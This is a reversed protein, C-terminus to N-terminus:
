HLPRAPRQGKEIQEAAAAPERESHLPRAELTDRSEIEVGFGDCGKLCVERVHRVDQLTIERLEPRRFERLEDACLLYIDDGTPRRALSERRGALAIARIMARSAQDFVRAPQEKEFVQAVHIVEL